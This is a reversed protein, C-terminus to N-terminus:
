PVIALGTITQGSGIRAGGSLAGSSLDITFLRASSGITSLSVFGTNTSGSTAIDFGLNENTTSVGLSGVTFLRGTNPSVATDNPVTSRVPRGQTVLVNRARDIAYNVTGTTNQTNNTYAAGVVSPM